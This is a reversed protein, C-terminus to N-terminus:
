QFERSRLGGEGEHGTDLRKVLLLTLGLDRIKNVLGHLAAQDAIIGKLVTIPRGDRNFQAEVTLGDFRSSWGEGLHGEVHIEYDAQDSFNARNM